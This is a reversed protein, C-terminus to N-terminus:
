LQSLRLSGCETSTFHLLQRNGKGNREWRSGRLPSMHHVQCCVGLGETPDCEGLVSERQTLVNGNLFDVHLVCSFVTQSYPAQCVWFCTSSLFFHSAWVPLKWTMKNLIKLKSGSDIFVICFLTFIAVMKDGRSGCSPEVM